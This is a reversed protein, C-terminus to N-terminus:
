KLHLGTGGLPEDLSVVLESYIFCLSFGGLGSGGAAVGVWAERNKKMV